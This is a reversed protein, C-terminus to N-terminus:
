QQTATLVYSVACGWVAGGPYQNTKLVYVGASSPTYEFCCQKPDAPAGGCNGTAWDDNQAVPSGYQGQQYLYLRTDAGGTLNSTWFRYRQGATLSLRTWDEDGEPAFNHRQPAGLALPRAEEAVDDPEFPDACYGKYVLPIYVYGPRASFRVDVQQSVPGVYGCANWAAVSATYVGPAAYTHTVAAGHGWPAGDGFDWAIARPESGAALSASFFVTAGPAPLTPTYAATLGAPAACFSVAVAASDYAAGCPNTATLSVTYNGTLAFVHTVVAGAGLAGDGLAWAITFPATGSLEVTFTVVGGPTPWAPEYAIPAAAPPQRVAVTGAAPDQGYPNTATLTVTYAGALAYTHTPHEVTTTIGDGFAWQFALPAAGSSTNTFVVTEGHCVPASSTFAATPRAVVVLTDQVVQEGCYNTATLVVTRTGTTAYTHQATAGAGVQGDGFDWAYALPATGGATATFTTPYGVTPTPPAWSLVTETVPDCTVVVEAQGVGSACANSATLVVTYTGTAAYVHQAVPGAGSQGDGFSWAWDAVPLTSSAQATFTIVNGVEPPAPAWSPTVQQPAGHAPVVQTAPDLGCGNTAILVVEYSGAPAFAHTPDELASSGGDDFDWLYTLTPSGVTTNTFQVPTEGACVPLPGYTFGAEPTGSIVVSATMTDYGCAATATLYATYVGATTYAHTPSIATSTAGDGFAWLYAFPEGVGHSYNAFGVAQAVCQPQPAVAFRAACCAFAYKLDMSTDDRYSIHPYGNDDLALANAAGVDAAADVTEHHWAAGDHYAYRLQHDKWYSVHAHGLDDLALSGQGLTDVDVVDYSWGGPGRRAYKLNAGGSASYVIHPRGQSDFALSAWQGVDGPADVTEIAWYTAPNASGQRPELGAAAYKLNGNTVDYYAIAPWGVYSGGTQLALAAYRGVDGASDVVEPPGWGAAGAAVYKLDGNSADYYSIRPYGQSDFALSTYRGVDGTTDVGVAGSNSWFRLDGNTADYYSIGVNGAGHYAMSTYLGVDGASDLTQVVWTAGDHYAYKLDGSGYYSVHPRGNADLVLDTHQGVNGITDVAATHWAWGTGDGRSGEKAGVGPAPYALSGAPLVLLIGWVAILLVSLGKRM